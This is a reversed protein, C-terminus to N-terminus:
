RSIRQIPDLLTAVTYSGELAPDTTAVLAESAVVAGRSHGIFQLDVVEGVHTQRTALLYTDALDVGCSIRIAAFLWSAILDM